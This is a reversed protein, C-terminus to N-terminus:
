RQDGEAAKKLVLCSCKKKLHRNLNKQADEGIALWKPQLKPHLLFLKHKPMKLKWAHHLMEYHQSVKKQFELQECREGYAIAAGGRLVFQHYIAAFAAGVFPGFWFIGQVVVMDEWAKEKNYVVVAGFSGAPNIGTETIPITALHVMFVAFWIPLPALIELLLLEGGILSPGVVIVLAVSISLRWGYVPNAVGTNPQERRDTTQVKQKACESAKHGRERCNYCFGYFNITKAGVDGGETSLVARKNGGDKQGRNEQNWHGKRKKGLQGGQQTVNQTQQNKGSGHHSSSAKSARDVKSEKKLYEEDRKHALFDQELQRNKEETDVLHPAFMSLRSYEIEYEMVSLNDQQFSLFEREKANRVSQPFYKDDFMLIFDTRKMTAHDLGRSASTWWTHADGILQFTDLRQKFVETCSPGTARFIKVLRMRDEETEAPPGQNQHNNVQGTNQNMATAVVQAILQTLQAMNVNVTHNGLQPEDGDITGGNGTSGRGTGTRRRTGRRSM